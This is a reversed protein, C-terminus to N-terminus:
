LSELNRRDFFINREALETPTAAVHRDALLPDPDPFWPDGLAPADTWEPPPAGSMKAERKFTAAILTDWRFDGTSPPSTMAAARETPDTLTRIDSVARALLRLAFEVDGQHLEERILRSAEVTTLMGHAPVPPDPSFDVSLGIAALTGFALDTEM